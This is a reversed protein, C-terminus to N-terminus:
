NFLKIDAINGAFYPLKKDKEKIFICFEDNFYFYRKDRQLATTKAVDIAAESKIKGGNEDLEFKISQIAKEIKAVNGDDTKFEQNEFEEFEKKVNFNINPVRLVDENELNHKGKYESEYKLINNYIELFNEGEVGRSLVVEENEKTLLKVAFKKTSEYFYVYVQNKVKNKTNEDIGFFEIDQEDKFRSNELKTFKEEFTFEKKLMTYFLYREKGPEAGNLAGESWDIDDLIDSNENFKDKIGKEIESKLSLTKLGWKKYYSDESLYETKFTQKNLNDISAIQNEFKVDTKILNDMMDNWVLQFTGCWITNKNIKDEISAVVEISDNYKEDKSTNEEEIIDKSMNINKLVEKKLVLGCIIILALLVTVVLVYNIKIVKKNEM